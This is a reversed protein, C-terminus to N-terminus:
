GRSPSRRRQVRMVDNLKLNSVPLPRNDGCRGRCKNGGLRVRTGPQHKATSERKGQQGDQIKAATPLLRLLNSQRVSLQVLLHHHALSRFAGRFSGVECFGVKEGAHAMLDARWQIRNETIRLQHSPVKLKGGFLPVGEFTDTCTAMM